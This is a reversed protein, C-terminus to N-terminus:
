HSPTHNCLWADYVDDSRDIHYNQLFASRLSDPLVWVVFPRQAHPILWVDDKCNEMRDLVHIPFPLLATDFRGTNGEITYPQGRYIPIYRLETRYDGAVSGYGMQVSSHDQYLDLYKGVAQQAIGVDPFMRYMLLQQLARPLNVCAFLTCAVAIYYLPIIPERSSTIETDRIAIALYVVISPVIHWFYHPGSGSKSTVLALFICVVILIFEPLRRRLAKGSRAGFIEMMLCLSILFLAFAVNVALNTPSLGESRTFLIWSIYNRLSIDPLVFPLLTVVTAILSSSLIARLGFKRYLLLFPFLLAAGATIKFGVIVGSLIGVLIVAPLEVELLSCIITLTVLLVIWIDSRLGLSLEPHQLLISVPIALLAISAAVSFFRRLLVYFATCLALNAIVVSSRMIWFHTVGGALLALRYLLFTFPGYVLSYTSDPSRPPNYMPLGHVGAASISLINAEDQQMVFCHLSSVTILVYM